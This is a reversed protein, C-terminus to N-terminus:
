LTFWELHLYTPYFLLKEVEKSRIPFSRTINPLCNYVKTIWFSLLGLYNKKKTDSMLKKIHMKFFFKQTADATRACHDFYIPQMVSTTQFFSCNLYSKKAKTTTTTAFTQVCLASFTNAIDPHHQM